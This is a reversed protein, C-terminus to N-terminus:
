DEEDLQKAFKKIELVRCKLEDYESKLKGTM